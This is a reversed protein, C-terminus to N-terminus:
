AADSDTSVDHTAYVSGGVTLVNSNIIDYKIDEPYGIVLKRIHTTNESTTVGNPHINSFNSHIDFLNSNATSGIYINGKQIKMVIFYKQLSSKVSFTKTNM